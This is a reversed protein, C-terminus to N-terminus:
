AKDHSETRAAKGLSYTAKSPLVPNKAASDLLGSSLGGFNSGLAQMLLLSEVGDGKNGNLLLLPLLKSMDLTSGGGLSQLLLLTTLGGNSEGAGTIDNDGGLLLLPLLDTTPGSGLNEILSIAKVFFKIGFMNARPLYEVISGSHPDLGIIAGGKVAKVFLAQFPTDSIVLLDGPEVQHEGVPLRYVFKDGGDFVFDGVDFFGDGDRAVFKDDAV